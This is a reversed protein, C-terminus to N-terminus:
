CLVGAAEACHSLRAKNRLVLFRSIANDIDAAGIKAGNKIALVDQWVAMRDDDSELRELLPRIYRDRSPVKLGGHHVKEAFAAAGILRFRRARRASWKARGAPPALRPVFRLRKGLLKVGLRSCKGIVANRTM